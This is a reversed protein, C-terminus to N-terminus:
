PFVIQEAIGPDKKSRIVPFHQPIMVHGLFVQKKFAGGMHRQDKDRRRAPADGMVKGHVAQRFDGINVGGDQFHRPNGERIAEGPVAEQIRGGKRRVTDKVPVAKMGIEAHHLVPDLKNIGGASVMQKQKIQFLIGHFLLIQGAIRCPLLFFLLKKRKEQCM